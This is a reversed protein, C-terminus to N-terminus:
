RGLLFDARLSSGGMASKKDSWYENKTGINPSVNSLIKLAGGKGLSFSGNRYHRM